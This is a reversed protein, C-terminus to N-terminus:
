GYSTDLSKKDIPVTGLIRGTQTTKKSSGEHEEPSSTFESEIVTMSRWIGLISCGYVCIFVAFDYSFYVITGM